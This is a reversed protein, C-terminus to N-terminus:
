WELWYFSIHLVKDDDTKNFEEELEEQSINPDLTKMALLM